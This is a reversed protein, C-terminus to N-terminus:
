DHTYAARLRRWDRMTFACVSQRAPPVVPDDGAQAPALGLSLQYPVGPGTTSNVKVSAEGKKVLFSYHFMNDVTNAFSNRDLLFDIGDVLPTESTIHEERTEERTEHIKDKLKMRIKHKLKRRIEKLRSTEGISGAASTENMNEPEQVNVTNV